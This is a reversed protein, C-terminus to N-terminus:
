ASKKTWGNMKYVYKKAEEKTSFDCVFEGTSRSGDNYTCKWVGTCRYHPGYSYQGVKCRSLDFTQAMKKKLKIQKNKNSM